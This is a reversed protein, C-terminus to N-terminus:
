PREKDTFCTACFNDITAPQKQCSECVKVPSELPAGTNSMGEIAYEREAFRKELCDFAYFALDIREDIWQRTPSDVSEGWLLATLIEQVAQRQQQQNMQQSMGGMLSGFGQLMAMPDDPITSM